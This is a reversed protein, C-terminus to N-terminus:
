LAGAAELVEQAHGPVKVKRWAKLVRGEAGILYNSRELVMYKIVSKSKEVWSGCADSKRGAGDSVLPVAL